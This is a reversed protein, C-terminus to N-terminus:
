KSKQPDDIKPMLMKDFKIQTELGCISFLSLSLQETTDVEKYGWPSVGVTWPIRSALISDHTAKGKKLPDEWGLSQDCTEWMAPLNRVLQAM